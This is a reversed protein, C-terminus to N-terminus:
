GKAGGVKPRRPRGPGRKPNAPRAASNRIIMEIPINTSNPAGNGAILRAIYGAAIRGIEKTPIRVTTIAPDLEGALELDDFGTISLEGPVDIGLTKAEIVAGVALVDTTCFVATVKPNANMVARLGARGSSVSYLVHAIQREPLKIKRERLARQVGRQRARVRDNPESLNAILGFERHGLNLLYETMQFAALENDFGVAPIGNKSTHVYTTIFPVGSTRLVALTEPLHDDGVLVIGDVGRRLLAQVSELEIEANYQHNAIILTYGSNHLEAQLAVIGDAFVANGITPVVAGITRTKRSALAAAAGNPVFGTKQLIETVRLRLEPSVTEPRNIVRSVTAISVGAAEAVDTLKIARKDGAM